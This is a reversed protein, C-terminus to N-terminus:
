ADGEPESQAHHKDDRVDGFVQRNELFARQAKYFAHLFALARAEPVPEDYGIKTRIQAAVAVVSPDPTGPAEDLPHRRLLTELTELEFRGYHELQDTSFVFEAEEVAETIDPLLVPRPDHVVVTHALIDGIRARQRTFLPVALVVAIWILLITSWFWGFAQASLLMSGPVFVEVEKMLNRMVVSHTTLGHGDASLVRLRLFKKGLTQGNWFLESAIYYPARIVLMLLLFVVLAAEGLRFPLLAIGLTLVITLLVTISVDTLQAGFRAALTAIEFRVPVGEPPTIEFWRRRAEERRAAEAATMTVSM